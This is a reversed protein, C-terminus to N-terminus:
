SSAPEKQLYASSSERQVLQPLLRDFQFPTTPQQVGYPLYAERWSINGDEDSTAVVSGLVDTHYYTVTETTTQAMGAATTTLWLLLAFLGRGSLAHRRLLSHLPTM